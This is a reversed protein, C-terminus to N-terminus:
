ANLRHLERTEDVSVDVDIKVKEHARNVMDRATSHTEAVSVLRGVVVPASAQGPLADGPASVRQGAAVELAVECIGRIGRAVEVGAVSRVLGPRV